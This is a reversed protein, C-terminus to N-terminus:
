DTAIIDAHALPDYGWRHAFTMASCFVLLAFAVGGVVNFLSQGALGVVVAATAITCAFLAIALRLARPGSAKWMMVAILGYVLVGDAVSASPFRTVFPPPIAHPFPLLRVVNEVYRVTFLGLIATLAFFVLPARWAPKIFAIFTALGALSLPVDHFIGWLILGALMAARTDFSRWLPLSLALPVHSYARELEIWGLAVVIAAFVVAAAAWPSLRIKPSDPVLPEEYEM